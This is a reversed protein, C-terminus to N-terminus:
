RVVISRQLEPDENERSSSSTQTRRLNKSKVKKTKLSNRNKTILFITNAETMGLGHSSPAEGKTNSQKEFRCLIVESPTKNSKLDSLVSAWNKPAEWIPRKISGNRFGMFMTIKATMEDFRHIPTPTRTPLFELPFAEKKLGFNRNFKKNDLGGTSAALNMFKQIIPRAQKQNKRRELLLSRGNEIESETPANTQFNISNEDGLINRQSVMHAEKTQNDQGLEIAVSMPTRARIVSIGLTACVVNDPLDTFDSSREQAPTETSAAVMINQMEIYQRLRRRKRNLATREITPGNKLRSDILRPSMQFGGIKPKRNGGNSKQSMAMMRKQESMILKWTRSSMAFPGADLNKKLNGFNMAEAKASPALFRKFNPSGRLPRVFNVKSPRTQFGAYDIAPLQSTATDYSDDFFEEYTLMSIKSNKAGGERKTFPDPQSSRQRGRRNGLCSGMTKEIKQIIGEILGIALQISETTATLPNLLSQIGFFSSNLDFTRIPQIESNGRSSVRARRSNKNLSDLKATASPQNTVFNASDHTPRSMFSGDSVAKLTDEVYIPAVLWPYPTSKSDWMSFGLETRLKYIKRRNIANKRSRSGGKSFLKDYYKIVNKSGKKLALYDNLYAIITKLRTDRENLFVLCGDKMEMKVGYQWLGSKKSISNDTFMFARSGDPLNEISTETIAGLIDNPTGISQGAAFLAADELSSGRKEFSEAITEYESTLSNNRLSPGGLRNYFLTSQENLPRRIIQISKIKSSRLIKHRTIAPANKLMKGFNSKQKLFSFHNFFLVGRCNKDMDTTLFAQTCANSTELSNDFRDVGKIVPPTFDVPKLNYNLFPIQKTIRRDQIKTNKVTKRELKMLPDTRVLRRRQGHGSWKAAFWTGKKNRKVPGTWYSGNNKAPFRVIYIYSNTQPRGSKIINEGSIPAGKSGKDYLQLTTTNQSKPSIDYLKKRDNTRSRNAFCTAYYSLHNGVNKPFDELEFSVKFTDKNSSKALAEDILKPDVLEILNGQFVIDYGPKSHLKRLNLNGSRAITSALIEKKVGVVIVKLNRYRIHKSLRLSMMLTVNLNESSSDRLTSTKGPSDTIIKDFELIPAPDTNESVSAGSSSTSLKIAM